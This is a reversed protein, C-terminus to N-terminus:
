AFCKCNSVLGTGQDEVPKVVGDCLALPGVPKSSGEVKSRGPCTGLALQLFKRDVQAFSGHAHVEFGHKYWPPIHAEEAGQAWALTLVWMYRVCSLCKSAAQGRRIAYREIGCVRPYRHVM